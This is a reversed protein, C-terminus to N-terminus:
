KLSVDDVRFASPLSFDNVARFQVRVTQGKYALLNFPGRQTYVGQTAKNLNSFTALTALLAGSTSRVEVFLQDYPTFTTTESSTVNLWFTLNATTAASPITVTQYESGNANDYFGVISYGTGGHQLGGTSFYANGSLVWPSASSEFGGNVILETGTPPSVTLTVPVTVPTNTAGTAAIAIAGNYTGAALGSINVSVNSTSPATGSAPAVLLWSQNSSATWNLTGGGSNSIALAQSPPNAGGATASFSFSSPSAGITPTPTGASGNYIILAFDQDTTDANGPVGDGAMNTARVTVTFSGSTGSPLFVSEVNNRTDASGGTISSGGSFVNGRYTNGGVTVELDLNNV